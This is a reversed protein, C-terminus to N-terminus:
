LTPKVHGLVMALRRVAPGENLRGSESSMAQEVEQRAEEMLPLIDGWVEDQYNNLVSWWQALHAKTADVSDELSSRGESWASDDFNPILNLPNTPSPVRHVPPPPLQSKIVSLTALQQPSLNALLPDADTFHSDDTTSDAVADDINFSPDSLLAVVAAGDARHRLASLSDETYATEGARPFPDLATESVRFKRLDGHTEEGNEYALSPGENRVLFDDLDQQARGRANQTSTPSRFSELQSPDYTSDVGSRSRGRFNQAATSSESPGSHNSLSQGKSEGNTAAALGAPFGNASSSGLVDGLLGSASAGLRTAISPSKQSAQTDPQDTSVASHQAGFDTQEQNPPGHQHQEQAATGREGPDNDLASYIPKKGSSNSSMTTANSLGSRKKESEM